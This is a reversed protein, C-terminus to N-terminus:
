MFGSRSGCTNSCIDCKLQQVEIAIYDIAVKQRHARLHSRLGAMSLCLRGYDACMLNLQRCTDEHLEGPVGKCVDRKLRAHRRKEEETHCRGRQAAENWNNRDSAREEWHECPINCKKLADKICDKFRMKPKIANRRGTRLEGYFLQFVATMWESM